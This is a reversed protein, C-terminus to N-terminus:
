FHYMKLFKVKNPNHSNILILSECRDSNLVSLCSGGGGGGRIAMLYVQWISWKFYTELTKLPLDTKGTDAFNTWCQIFTICINQTQESHGVCLIQHNGNNIRYNFGVLFLRFMKSLPPFM